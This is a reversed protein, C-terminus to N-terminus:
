LPLIMEYQSLQKEFGLRNLFAIMSDDKEDVNIVTIEKNHTDQFIYKLLTSAIGQRRMGPDVALQSIRAFAPQYIAYGAVNGEVRAEVIEENAINETIMGMSDLFSASFDQFKEYRSWDPHHVRLIEIKLDSKKKEIIDVDVLRFSHLLGHKEFGISSYIKIAHENQTLVELVCQKIHREHFKPILFDYMRATIKRGRYSPRVGTGGNYATLKKNYYNVSTFVFGVLAEYDFAGISLPFDIKLKEVFKRVFQEKNLRFPIPYDSFADLFVFYMENLDKPSLTKIHLDDVKM